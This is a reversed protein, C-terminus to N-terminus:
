CVYRYQRKEKLVRYVITLLRRAVAVKASNGGRRCRIRNYLEELDSCKCLAPWVAEIMAYRLYKNGQKTISGHYSRGGSSYTSPVLGAYAHLKAPRSFRAIDDVESVILLSFFKGIGPITMVDKVRKDKRGFGNMWDEVQKIQLWFHELLSLESGLIRRAHKPLEIQKLWFIGKKSFIDKMSRSDRILPFGDILSHIRNKVMTSLRVLFMRHRLLKKGVRAAPSSVHASPVLDCRLLHALTESDIKDTKVKAEAIAKVKLPDALTVSDILEDLWDYMVLSNYGAELVASCGQEAYKGIFLAVTEPHNRFKARKVIQGKETMITGYSFRKHYDIGVYTKM